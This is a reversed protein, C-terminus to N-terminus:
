SASSPLLKKSAIWDPHLSLAHL